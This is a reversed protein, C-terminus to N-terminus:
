LQVLNTCLSFDIMHHSFQFTNYIFNINYNWKDTQYTLFKKILSLFKLQSGFIFQPILVMSFSLVHILQDSLQASHKYIYLM